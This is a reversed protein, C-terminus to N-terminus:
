STVGRLHSSSFVINISHEEFAIRVAGLTGNVLKRCYFAAVITCVGHLPAVSSVFDMKRVTM